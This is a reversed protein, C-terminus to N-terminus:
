ANRSFDKFPLSKGLERGQSRDQERHRLHLIHFIDYMRFRARRRRLRSEKM